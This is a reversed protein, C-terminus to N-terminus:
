CFMTTFDATVVHLSAAWRVAVAGYLVSLHETKM